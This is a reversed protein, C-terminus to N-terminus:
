EEGGTAQPVESQGEEEETSTEDKERFYITDALYGAVASPYRTLCSLEIPQVARKSPQGKKDMKVENLATFLKKREGVWHPCEMLLHAATALPQSM